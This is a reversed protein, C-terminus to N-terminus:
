WSQISSSQVECHNSSYFLVGESLLVYYINLQTVVWGGVCMWVWVWVHVLCTTYLTSDYYELLVTISTHMPNILLDLTM